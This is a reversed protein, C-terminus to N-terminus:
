KREISKNWAKIAQIRTFMEGKGPGIAGCSNCKVQWQSTNFLTMGSAAVNDSGCFPCSLIKLEPKVNMLYNLRKAIHELTKEISGKGWPECLTIVEKTRAKDVDIGFGKSLQKVNKRFVYRLLKVYHRNLKLYAIKKGIEGDYTDEKSCTTTATYVKGGNVILDLHYIDVGLGLAPYYKTVKYKQTDLLPFIERLTADLVSEKLVANVTKRDGSYGISFHIYKMPIRLLKM